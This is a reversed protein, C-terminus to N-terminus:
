SGHQVYMWDFLFCMRFGVRQCPNFSLKCVFSQQWITNHKNRGTPARLIEGITQSIILSFRLSFSAKIIKDPLLILFGSFGALDPGVHCRQKDDYNM